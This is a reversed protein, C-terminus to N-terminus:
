SEIPTEEIRISNWPDSVMENASPLFFFFPNFDRPFGFATIARKLSKQKPRKHTKTLGINGRLSTLRPPRDNARPLIAQEM